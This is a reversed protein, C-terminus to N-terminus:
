FGYGQEIYSVVREAYEASFNQSTLATIGANRVALSGYGKHHLHHMANYALSFEISADSFSPPLGLKKKLRTLDSM